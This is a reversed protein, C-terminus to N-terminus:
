IFTVLWNLVVVSVFCRDLKSFFHCKPLSWFPCESDWANLRLRLPNTRCRQVILFRLLPFVVLLCVTLTLLDVSLLLSQCRLMKVNIMGSPNAASRELVSREEGLVSWLSPQLWSLSAGAQEASRRGGSSRESGWPYNGWAPPSSWASSQLSGMGWHWPVQLCLSQSQHDRRATQDGWQLYASFGEQNFQIAHHFLQM